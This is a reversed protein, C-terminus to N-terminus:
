NDCTCVMYIEGVDLLGVISLGIEVKTISVCSDDCHGLDLDLSILPMVLFTQECVNRDEEQRM